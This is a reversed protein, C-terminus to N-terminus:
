ESLGAAELAETHATPNIWARAEVCKGNRWTFLCGLEQDLEPGDAFRIWLHGLVLVRDDLDRVESFEARGGETVEALDEYYQRMGDHGRYMRGETSWELAPYWIGEPDWLTVAAEADGRVWADLLRQTLEVNEESM